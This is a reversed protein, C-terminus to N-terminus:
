NQKGALIGFEDLTEKLKIKWEDYTSNYHLVGKLLDPFESELEEKLESLEFPGDERMFAEYGTIVISPCNIQALTMHRLIEIGGFGQPRGGHERDGVDFTPLSMDLLLLDPLNTELEILASNVSQAYRFKIEIGLSELVREIHIRKPEEDEVILIKISKM